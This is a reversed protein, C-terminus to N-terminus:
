LHKLWTCALEIWSQCEEQIGRGQWGKTEENALGLGHDGHPYIHLESPVGAKLLGEYFLLSNEVPVTDDEMTHWLFTPPTDISVYNELSMARRNQEQQYGKGLLNQFSGQHRKEGATIVPYSLILGNPRVMEVEEDLKEALFLKNWFVGLSAALHGGASSGQVIIKDPDINWEEASERLMGVAAGLQLLAVPFRAPAVSYRLVAAHFGHALFQIAIAEAERDSTFEFGGGPCIVVIPRKRNPDMEESNDLFYTVLEADFESEPIQIKIKKHFM